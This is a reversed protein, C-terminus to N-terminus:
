RLVVTQAASRSRPSVAHLQLTFGAGRGCGTAQRRAERSAHARRKGRRHVPATEQLTRADADARARGEPGYREVHHALRLRLLRRGRLDLGLARDTRVARDAARDIRDHLVADPHALLRREVRRDAQAAMAGLARRDALMPVALVPQLRRHLQDGALVLADAPLLREVLDGRLQELDLLLGAGVGGEPDARRLVAVLLRVQHALEHREVARVVHVVLRADAMRRGDRAHGVGPAVARHRVRVVVHLVRLARQVDAR